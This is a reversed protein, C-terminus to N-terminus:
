TALDHRDSFSNQGHSNVPLFTPYTAKEKESTKRAWPNFRMEQKTGSEKGGLEQSAGNISVQIEFIFQSVLFLFMFDDCCHTDEM